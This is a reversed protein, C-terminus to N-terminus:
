STGVPVSDPTLNALEYDAIRFIYAHHCFVGVLDVCCRHCGDTPACGATTPCGAATARGTDPPPPYSTPSADLPPAAAPDPPAAAPESTSVGSVLVPLHNTLLQTRFPLPSQQPTHAVWVVCVCIFLLLLVVDVM